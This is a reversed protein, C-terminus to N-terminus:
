GDEEEEEALEETPPWMVNFAETTLAAWMVAIVMALAGFVAWDTLTM